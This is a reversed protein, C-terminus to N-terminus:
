FISSTGSVKAGSNKLDDADFLDCIQAFVILPDTSFSTPMPLIERTKLVLGSDM